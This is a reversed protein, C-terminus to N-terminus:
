EVRTPPRIRDRAIWNPDQDAWAAIAAHEDETLGLARSAIAEIGSEAEEDPGQEIREVLVEVERAQADTWGGIPVDVLFSRLFHLYGGAVHGGHFVHSYYFHVVRTGLLGVIARPHRSLAHDAERVLGSLFTDKLVYGVADWAARITRGNQCIVVKGARFTDPGPVPNGVRSLEEEDYRIWWGAWSLRHRVVEGNGAFPGGGLFRRAHPGAPRERTVYAERLGRRHFSVTWRIDLVEGLRNSRGSLRSLAQALAPSAPPAFLARSATAAYMRADIRRTLHLRLVERERTVRATEVAGRGPGAFLVVPYVAVGPFLGALTALWIGRLTREALMRERTRLANANVLVKNPLVFALRDRGRLWGLCVHLFYLYLDPAGEVAEPYRRALRSKVERALRKAEVYPPNGVVLLRGEVPRAGLLRELGGEDLVDAQRVDAERGVRGRAQEVAEADVDFGVVRTAGEALAAALFVGDGCAPDVVVDEPGPRLRRVVLRALELPTYYGGRLKRPSTRAEYANM